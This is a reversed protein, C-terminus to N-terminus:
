AALVRRYARILNVHQTFKDSARFEIQRTVPNHQIEFLGELWLDRLVHAYGSQADPFTPLTAGYRGYWEDRIQSMPKWQDPLPESMAAYLRLAYEHCDRHLCLHGM